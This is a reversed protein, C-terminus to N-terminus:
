TDEWAKITFGVKNHDIGHLGIFTIKHKLEKRTAHVSVSDGTDHDAGLVLAMGGLPTPVDDHIFFHNNEKLLGEDDIYITDDNPIDVVGFTSAKIYTYIQKYDGNYEVEEITKEIPNILLAKM